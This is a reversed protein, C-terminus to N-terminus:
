PSEEKQNMKTLHLFDIYLLIIEIRDGKKNFMTSNFEDLSFTHPNERYIFHRYRNETSEDFIARVSLIESQPLIEEKPEIKKKLAAKLSDDQWSKIQMLVGELNNMNFEIIESRSNKYMVRTLKEKWGIYYSYKKLSQQYYNSLASYIKAISNSPLFQISSSSPAVVTNFYLRMNNDRCYDIIQPLHEWNEIMPCCAFTLHKKKSICYEQLLQVNTFFKEFSANKRIREYNEPNLSDVSIIPNVNCNDLVRWVKNSLNTANTTIHIEAEPNLQIFLEWKPFYIPTLFHEGGLFRALKAKQVFPKIQEVFDKDYPIKLPPLKDRNKRILHSHMGSCMVCELNCINSLEFELIEPYLKNRTVDEAETIKEALEFDYIKAHLGSFNKAEIQNLCRKCGPNYTNHILQKRFHISKEGFWAEEISQAPYNGYIFSRNYCCPVIQGEPM